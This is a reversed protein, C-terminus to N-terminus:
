RDVRRPLFPTMSMLADAPGGEPRAPRCSARRGGGPLEHDEGDLSVDAAVGVDNGEIPGM